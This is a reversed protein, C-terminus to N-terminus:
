LKGGRSFVLCFTGPSPFLLFLHRHPPASVPHNLSHKCRPCHGAGKGAKAELISAALGDVKLCSIPLGKESSNALGLPAGFPASVSLQVLWHGQWIFNRYCVRGAWLEQTLTKSKNHPLLGVYRIESIMIINNICYYHRSKM